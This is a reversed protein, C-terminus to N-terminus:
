GSLWWVVHRLAVDVCRKSVELPPSELVARPLGKWHSVVMEMFFNGMLDM